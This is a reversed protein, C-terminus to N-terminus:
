RREQKEDPLRPNERWAQIVFHNVARCLLKFRYLSYQGSDYGSILCYHESAPAAAPSFRIRIEIKDDFSSRGDRRFNQAFQYVRELFGIEREPYVEDVPVGDSFLELM